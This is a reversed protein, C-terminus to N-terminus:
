STQVAAYTRDFRGRALDRDDILFVLRGADWWMMDAADHSDVEFLVKWHAVEGEHRHANDAYWQLDPLEARLIRAYDDRGERRLREIDDRVQQVPLHWDHLIPKKGAACLYADHAPTGGFDSPHGGVRSRGERAPAPPELLESLLDGAEGLDQWLLREPLVVAPRLTLPCGPFAPQEDNVFEPVPPPFRRLASVDDFHRVEHDIDFAPEDVGIFFGLVGKDPLGVDAARFSGLDLQGVFTLARGDRTPWHEPGPLAPLGGLRCGTVGEPAGTVATAHFAPLARERLEEWRELLGARAVAERLMSAPVDSLPTSM